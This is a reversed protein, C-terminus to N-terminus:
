LLMASTGETALVSIGLWSVLGVLSDDVLSPKPKLIGPEWLQIADMVVLLVEWIDNFGLGFGMDNVMLIEM